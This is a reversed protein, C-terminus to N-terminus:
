SLTVAYYWSTLNRSRQKQFTEVKLRCFIVDDAASSLQLYKKTSIETTFGGPDKVFNVYTDPHLVTAVACAHLVFLDCRCPIGTLNSYMLRQTRWGRDSSPVVTIQSYWISFVTDDKLSM